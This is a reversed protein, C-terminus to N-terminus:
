TRYINSSYKYIEVSFDLNVSSISAGNNAIKYNVTNASNVFADAVLLATESQVTMKIQDGITIGSVTLYGALVDGKAVTVVISKNVIKSGSNSYDCLELTGNGDVVGSSGSVVSGGTLRVHGGTINNSRCTYTGNTKLTNDSGTLQNYTDEQIDLALGTAVINNNSFDTSKAGAFTIGGFSNNGKVNSSAHEILVVAPQVSGEQVKMRNNSITAETSDEFLSSGSAICTEFGKITNDDIFIDTMNLQSQGPTLENPATVIGTANTQGSNGICKNGKVAISSSAELYIAYSTHGELVNNTVSGEQSAQGCYVGLIDTKNLFRTDTIYSFNHDVTFGYNLFDVLFSSGVNNCTNNQIITNKSAVVQVGNGPQFVGNVDTYFSDNFECNLIKLDLGYDDPIPIDYPGSYTPLPFGDGLATIAAGNIKNFKCKFFTINSYNLFYLMIRRRADVTLNEFTVHDFTINEATTAPYNVQGNVGRVFNEATLLPVELSSDLANSFMIVGNKIIVNSPVTLQDVLYNKGQLDIVILTSSIGETMVRQLAVTTNAVGGSIVGFATPIFTSSKVLTASQNVQTSAIVDFTNATATGAIIKFRAKRDTLDIGKGVPLLFTLAKYEAVTCEYAQSLDNILPLSIADAINENTVGVDVPVTQANYIANYPLADAYFVFQGNSNATAGSQTIPATGAQDSYIVSLGGSTGNALRERIEIPANPIINFPSNEKSIVTVIYASLSM